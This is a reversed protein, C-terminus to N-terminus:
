RDGGRSNGYGAARAAISGGATAERFSTSLGYQNNECLFVIPLNWSAAMNLAEHFIGENAGGDGFIAIGVDTSKRQKAALAAAVGLGVNAGVIGNAGMTNLEINFGNRLLPYGAGAAVAEQGVSSHATGKVLGSHFLETKTTEFSRILMMTKLLQKREADDPKPANRTALPHSPRGDASAGQAKAPAKGIERRLGVTQATNTHKMVGWGSGRAACDPV